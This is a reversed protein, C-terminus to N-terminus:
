RALHITNESTKGQGTAALISMLHQMLQLYRENDEKRMQELHDIHRQKDRLESILSAVQEQEKTLNALLMTSQEALKILNGIMRNVNDVRADSRCLIDAYKVLLDSRYAQEQQAHALLQSLIEDQKM